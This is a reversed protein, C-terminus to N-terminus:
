ACKSDHVTETKVMSAKDSTVTLGAFLNCTHPSRIRLQPVSDGGDENAFEGSRFSPLRLCSGTGSVM